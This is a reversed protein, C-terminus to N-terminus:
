GPPSKSAQEEDGKMNATVVGAQVEEKELLDLLGLEQPPFSHFLLSHQAMFAQLLQWCVSEAGGLM